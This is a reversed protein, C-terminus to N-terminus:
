SYKVHRKGLVGVSQFHDKHLWPDDESICEDIMECTKVMGNKM